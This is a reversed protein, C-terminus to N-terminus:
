RADLASGQGGGQHARERHHAAHRPHRGGARAHRHHGAQGRRPLGPEVAREACLPAGGRQQPAARGAGQAPDGRRRPGHHAGAHAPTPTRTITTHRPSKLPLGSILAAAACDLQADIAGGNELGKNYRTATTSRSAPWARACSGCPGSRATSCPARARRTWCRRAPLGGMNCERKLKGHARSLRGVAVTHQAVPALARCRERERGRQARAHPKAPSM